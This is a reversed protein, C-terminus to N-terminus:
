KWFGKLEFCDGVKTEYIISSFIKKISTPIPGKGWCEIFGSNWKRFFYNIDRGTEIVFDVEIDGEFQQMYVKGKTAKSPTDTGYTFLTEDSASSEKELIEKAFLGSVYPLQAFPTKGDGIKLKKFTKDYGPQGDELPKTQLLWNAITGRKFQIM